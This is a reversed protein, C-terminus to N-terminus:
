RERLAGMELLKEREITESSDDMYVVRISRVEGRIATSDYCLSQPSGRRYSGSNVPGTFRLSGGFGIRCYVRDDVRNYLNTNITLYKIDSNSINKWTYTIQRGGASNPPGVSIPGIYVPSGNDRARQEIGTPINLYLSAEFSNCGSM